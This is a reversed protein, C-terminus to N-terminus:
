KERIPTSRTWVRQLRNNRGSRYNQRTDPNVRAQVCRTSRRVYLPSTLIPKQMGEKFFWFVRKRRKIHDGLCGFLVRSPRLDIMPGYSQGLLTSVRTDELHTAPWVDSARTRGPIPHVCGSSLHNKPHTSSIQVLQYLKHNM